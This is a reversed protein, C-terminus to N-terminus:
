NQQATLAITKSGSEGFIDKAAWSSPNASPPVVIRLWSEASLVRHERAILVSM